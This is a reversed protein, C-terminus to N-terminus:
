CFSENTEKVKSPSEPQINMSFILERVINNISDAEPTFLNGQLNRLRQIIVPLAKFSMKYLNEELKMNFMHGTFNKQDSSYNASVKHKDTVKLLKRKNHFQRNM